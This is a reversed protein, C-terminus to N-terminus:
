TVEEAKDSEYPVKLTRLVLANNMMRSATGCTHVWLEDFM